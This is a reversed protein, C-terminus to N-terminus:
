NQTAFSGYPNHRKTHLSADLPNKTEAASKTRKSEALNWTRAPKGGLGVASHLGSIFCAKSPILLYIDAEGSLIDRPPALCSRL